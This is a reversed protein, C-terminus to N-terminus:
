MKERVIVISKDIHDVADKDGLEQYMARAQRLYELSTEPEDADSYVRGLDFLSSAELRRNGTWRSVQLSKTFYDYAEEVKGLRLAINGTYSNLDGMLKLDQLAEAAALSQKLYFYAKSDDGKLSNLYGVSYATEVQGFLDNRETFIDLAKQYYYLADETREMKQYDGGIHQLQEAEGRRDGAKGALALARRHTDLAKQYDGDGRYVTGINGIILAQGKYNRLKKSIALSQEYLDLSKDWNGLGYHVVGMVVLNYAEILHYKRKRAIELSREGAELASNAENLKLYVFGVDALAIALVHSDQVREARGAMEEFTRRADQYHGQMVESRGTLSLLGLRIDDHSYRRSDLGSALHMAETFHDLAAGHDNTEQARIGEATVEALEADNIEYLPKKYLQLHATSGKLLDLAQRMEKVEPKPFLRYRFIFGVVVSSLVLAVIILVLM